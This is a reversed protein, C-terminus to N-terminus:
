DSSDRRACEEDALEKTPFLKDEDPMHYGILDYQVCEGYFSIGRIVAPRVLNGWATEDVFWVTQGVDYKTELTM